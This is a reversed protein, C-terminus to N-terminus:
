IYFQWTYLGSIPDGDELQISIILHCRFNSPNKGHVHKPLCTLYTTRHQFSQVKTALLPIARRTKVFIVHQTCKRNFRVLREDGFSVIINWPNKIRQSKNEIKTRPKPWVVKMPDASFQEGGDFVTTLKTMEILLAPEVDQIELWIWKEFPFMRHQNHKLYTSLYHHCSAGSIERTLVCIRRSIRILNRRAIGFFLHM